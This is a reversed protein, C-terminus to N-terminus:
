NQNIKGLPSLLAEAWAKPRGSVDAKKENTNTTREQITRLGRCLSYPPHGHFKPIRTKHLIDQSVMYDSKKSVDTKKHPRNQKKRTTQFNMSCIKGRKIIHNLLKSMMPNDKALNPENNFIEILVSAVNYDVDQYLRKTIQM